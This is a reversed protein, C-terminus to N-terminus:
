VPISLILNVFKDKSIQPINFTGSVQSLPSPPPRRSETSSDNSLGIQSTLNKQRDVFFWNLTKAIDGKNTIIESEEALQQM